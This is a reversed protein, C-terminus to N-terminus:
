AGRRVQRHSYQPRLAPLRAPADPRRPCSQAIAVVGGAAPGSFSQTQGRFRLGWRRQTESPLPFTETSTAVLRAYHEQYPRYRRLCEWALGEIALTDLFDYSGENRWDSTDPKM